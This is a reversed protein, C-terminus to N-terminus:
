QPRRCDKSQGGWRCRRGQQLEIAHGKRLIRGGMSRGETNWVGCVISSPLIPCVSVGLGLTPRPCGRVARSRRGGGHLGLCAWPGAECCECSVCHVLSVCLLPSPHPYADLFHGGAPSATSQPLCVCVRACVCM